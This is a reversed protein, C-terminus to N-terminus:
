RGGWFKGKRDEPRPPSPAPGMIPKVRKDKPAKGILELAKKQIMNAAMKGGVFIVHYGNNSVGRITANYGILYEDKVGYLVNGPRKIVHPHNLQAFISVNKGIDVITGRERENGQRNIWHISIQYPLLNVFILVVYYNGWSSGSHFNDKSNQCKAWFSVNEMALDGMKPPYLVAIQKSLMQTKIANMQSQVMNLFSNMLNISDHNANYVWRCESTKEFTSTKTQIMQRQFGILKLFRSLYVYQDPNCKSALKSDNLSQYKPNTPDKVINSLVTKCLKLVSQHKVLSSLISNLQALQASHNSQSDKLPAAM